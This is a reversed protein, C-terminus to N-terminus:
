ADSRLDRRRRFPYVPHELNSIRIEHNEVKDMTADLKKLFRLLLNVIYGSVGLVGGGIIISLSEFIVEHWQM